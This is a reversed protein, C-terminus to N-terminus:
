GCGAQRMGAVRKIVLFGLADFKGHPSQEVILRTKKEARSLNFVYSIPYM